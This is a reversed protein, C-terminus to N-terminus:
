IVMGDIQAVTKMLLEKFSDAIHLLSPASQDTLWLHYTNNASDICIIDDGEIRGIAVFRNQNGFLRQNIKILGHYEDDSNDFFKALMFDYGEASCLKPTIIHPNSVSFFLICDEDTIRHESFFSSLDNSPM